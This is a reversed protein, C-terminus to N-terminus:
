PRSTGSLVRRGRAMTRRRPVPRTPLNVRRRIPPAPRLLAPPPWPRGAAHAARRARDLAERVPEVQRPTLPRRPPTQALEAAPVPEVTNGRVRYGIDEAPTARGAADYLRFRSRTEAILRRAVAKGRRGAQKSSLLNYLNQMSALHARKHAESSARGASTNWDREENIRFGGEPYSHDPRVLGPKLGAVVGQVANVGVPMTADRFQGQQLHELDRQTWKSPHLVLHDAGDFRTPHTRLTTVQAEGPSSLEDVWRDVDALLLADTM